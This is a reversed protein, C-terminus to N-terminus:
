IEFNITWSMVLYEINERQKSFFVQMNFIIDPPAFICKETFYFCHYRIGIFSMYTAYFM